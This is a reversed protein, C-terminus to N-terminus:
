AKVKERVLRESFAWLKEQLEEDRAYPSPQIEKAVPIFYRGRIDKEEVEPSTALYLQTLAGVEPTVAVASTLLKFVRDRFTVKEVKNNKTLKTAVLGPHLINVYVKESALRRALAKGFLANALKSRHYREWGDSKTEDNLTDFDIGNMKKPVLEHTFSSLVVIRSPQSEKIRDLLGTTFVFHGMHSVAFQTEIGDVSLEFPGQLIGSNNVLIHLPLGKKLFEQAAQRAKNMDNLDLELFELQPAPAKPHKAKIEAKIDEIAQQARQQSRCALFIRAGHAALAVTTSYGLGSNAGTVIAIKGTLDPIKDYSYGDSTFFTKWYAFQTFSSPM